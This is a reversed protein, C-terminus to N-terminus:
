ILDGTQSSNIESARRLIDRMRGDPEIVIASVDGDDFVLAIREGRASKLAMTYYYFKINKYEGRLKETFGDECDLVSVLRDLGLLCELNRRTSGRSATVSFDIESPSLREIGGVGDKPSLSYTFGTYLYRVMVYIAAVSFVLTVLRFILVYSDALLSLGYAGIAVAFLAASLAGAQKKQPLPSYTM